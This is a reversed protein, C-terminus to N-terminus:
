VGAVVCLTKAGLGAVSQKNDLNFDSHRLKEAMLMEVQECCCRFTELNENKSFEKSSGNTGLHDWVSIYYLRSILWFRQSTSDNSNVQLRLMDNAPRAFHPLLLSIPPSPKAGVFTNSGVLLSSLTPAAGGGVVQACVRVYASCQLERYCQLLCQGATRQM